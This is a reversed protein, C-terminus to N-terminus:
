RTAPLTRLVKANPDALRYYQAHNGLEGAKARAGQGLGVTAKNGSIEVEGRATFTFWGGTSLLVHALFHGGMSDLDLEESFFLTMTGGDVEGRVLTPPTTDTRAAQGTFSAVENGAEDRLRNGTGSPPRTYSVKVDTDTELVANALTLTVRAGSIAPSGSLSVTEETGGQPTKKVTFAVNALSAAAGLNENFILRLMTGSVLATSLTPPTTEVRHNPDHALDAHALTASEGAATASEITGNNLALTNALVAVGASSADGQAVTYAFELTKTGSGGAYDAWKEDGTVSSLDIKVRPTGTVNVAESFTVTVRITEGRAYTRGAGADSSFAVDTVSPPGTLNNLKICIADRVENGALDRLRKATPDTPTRYWFWINNDGGEIAPPKDGLGVTVVNGNIAVDGTATFQNWCYRSVQVCVRFIGGM